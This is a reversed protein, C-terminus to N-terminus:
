AKANTWNFDSDGVLSTVDPDSSSTKFLYQYDGSGGAYVFEQGASVDVALPIHAADIIPM